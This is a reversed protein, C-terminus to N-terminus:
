MWFALLSFRLCAHQDSNKALVKGQSVSRAGLADLKIGQRM